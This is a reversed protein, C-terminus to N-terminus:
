VYFVIEQQNDVWVCVVIVEYYTLRLSFILLPHNILKVTVNLMHTELSPLIIKNNIHLFVNGQPCATDKCINSICKPSKQNLFQWFVFLCM